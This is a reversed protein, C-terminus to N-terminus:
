APGKTRLSPQRQEAAGLVVSMLEALNHVDLKRMINARHFEITRRSIMLARAAEKNSAGRVIQALTLRERPTLKERGPFPRSLIDLANQLRDIERHAIALDPSELFEWRGNRRAISFDHAKTVDLVDSASARDLPYVCLIIMRKGRILASLQSEYEAFSEWYKNDLWFAHGVGRFGEFGRSLAEETKKLMTRTVREVDLEDGTLYWEAGAAVEVAGAAVRQEIDPIYDALRKVAEDGSYPDSTVWLCKENVSLGASFYDGVIHFLDEATGFFVALHEGWHVEPVPTLGSPRLEPTAVGSLNPM